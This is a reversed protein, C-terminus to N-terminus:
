CNPWGTMASLNWTATGGSTLSGSIVNDTRTVGNCDLVYQSETSWNVWTSDSKQVQAGTVSPNGNVFQSNWNSTTSYNNEFFVSTAEQIPAIWGSNMGTKSYYAFQNKSINQLVVWWTTGSYIDFKVDDTASPAPLGMILSGCNTTTDAYRYSWGASNFVYGVQLWYNAPFQSASCLKSRDSGYMAANQVLASFGNYSSSGVYGVPQNLTKMTMGKMLTQTGTYEAVAYANNLPLKESRYKDMKELKQNELDIQVSVAEDGDVIHLVPHWNVPLVSYDGVFSVSQIELSKDKLLTRLNENQMMIGKAKNLEADSLSDRKILDFFERSTPDLKSAKERLKEIDQQKMDSTQEASILNLGTIPVVLSTILAFFLTTKITKTTM